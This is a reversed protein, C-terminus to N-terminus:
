PNKPPAAGEPPPAAAEQQAAELLDVLDQLTLDQWESPTPSELLRRLLAALRPEGELARTLALSRSGRLCALVDKVTVKELPLAPLFRSPAGPKEGAVEVVLRCDKLLQVAQAPLNDSGPLIESLDELSLAPRRHAFRASIGLLAALGLFEDLPEGLGSARRWGRSLRELHQHAYAVETGYLVILWSWFMWIFLFLLHYLAGYIANYYTAVGQFWIFIWQAAQWLSGGVVGGLLAARLRVATNPMVLYIFTFGLWLLGLHVLGSTASYFPPPLLGELLRRIEPHGLFASSVSITGAMLIPFVLFISLYDSLKRSFPRTQSVHWTENFAREVNTMVVVLVVLLVVVGFVGLSAVQTNEIYQFIQLAFEQSGPALRDLLNAALLRQLGLGKWVAFLLALMPILALISAYALSAARVLSRNQWLGYGALIFLRLTRNLFSRRGGEEPEQWLRRQFFDQLASLPGSM